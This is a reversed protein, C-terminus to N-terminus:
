AEIKVGSNGQGMSNAVRYNETYQEINRMSKYVAEAKDETCYVTIDVYVEELVDFAPLVVYGRLRMKVQKDTHSILYPRGDSNWGDEASMGLKVMIRQAFAKARDEAVQAERIYGQLRKEQELGEEYKAKLKTADIEYTYRQALPADTVREAKPIHVAKIVVRRFWEKGIRFEVGGVDDSFVNPFTGFREIKLHNCDSHMFGVGIAERVTESLCKSWNITGDKHKITPQIRIQSM